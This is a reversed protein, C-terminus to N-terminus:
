HTGPHAPSFTPHIFAHLRSLVFARLCSLAFPRFCSLVFPRFSLPNKKKSKNKLVTFKMM